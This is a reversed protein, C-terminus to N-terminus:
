LLPHLPEAGPSDFHHIKGWLERRCVAVEIPASVQVERYFAMADRALDKCPVDLAAEFLARAIAYGRESPRPHLITPRSVYRELIGKMRGWRPRARHSRRRIVTHRPRALHERFYGSSGQNGPVAFYRFHRLCARYRVAALKTAANHRHRYQM